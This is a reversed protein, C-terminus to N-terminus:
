KSLSITFHSWGYNRRRDYDEYCTFERVFYSFCISVGGFSCVLADTKFSGFDEEVVGGFFIM